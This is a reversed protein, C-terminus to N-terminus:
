SPRRTLHHGRVKARSNLATVLAFLRTTGLTRWPLNASATMASTSFIHCTATTRLSEKRPQQEEHFAAHKRMGNIRQGLAEAVSASSMWPKDESGLDKDDPSFCALFFLAEKRICASRHRIM